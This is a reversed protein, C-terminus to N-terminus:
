LPPAWLSCHPRMCCRAVRDCSSCLGSLDLRSLCGAPGRLENTSFGLGTAEALPLFKLAAFFCLSSLMLAAGRVFHLKPNATRVLGWRMKPGLLAVMLLAPVGWRVWVLLPVSYRGGLYKVVSDIATFCAAAAVILGIAALSLSAERNM